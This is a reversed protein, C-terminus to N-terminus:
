HEAHERQEERRERERQERARREHEAVMQEYIPVQQATLISKVRSIQENHIREMEPHDRERVANIRAKTDDLITQLQSVQMPTLNLRARMEAVYHKRFEAPSPQAQAAAVSSNYYRDALVGVAVGCCFLLIAFLAAAWQNRRM